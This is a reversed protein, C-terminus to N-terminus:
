STQDLDASNANFVHLELFMNIIVLFVGLPMIFPNELYHLFQSNDRKCAFCRSTRRKMGVFYSLLGSFFLPLMYSQFFISWFTLRPRRGGARGVGARGSM